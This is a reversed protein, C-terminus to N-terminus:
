RRHITAGFVLDQMVQALPSLAPRHDDAGVPQRRQGLGTFNQHQLMPMDGLAAAMLRQGHLWAPIAVHIAILLQLGREVLNGLLM